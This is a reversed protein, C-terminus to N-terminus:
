NVALMHLPVQWVRDYELLLAQLSLELLLVFHVDAFAHFFM